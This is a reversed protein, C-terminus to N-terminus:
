EARVASVARVPIVVVQRVAGARRPEGPAHVALDLADAGVRDITGVWEGGDVLRLRVASRRRAIGRLGSLFDLRAEVQSSSTENLAGLGAVAAFGRHPVLHEVGSADILLSWDPGTAELRGRLRGVGGVLVLEVEAGVAARLRDALRVAAREGRTREAVEGALEAAEGAALEAELDAFLSEWRM